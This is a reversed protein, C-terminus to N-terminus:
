GIEAGSFFKQSEGVIQLRPLNNKQPIEDMRGAGASGLPLPNLVRQSFQAIAGLNHSHATIVIAGKGAIEAMKRDLRKFEPRVIEHRGDMTIAEVGCGNRFVMGQDGAVKM